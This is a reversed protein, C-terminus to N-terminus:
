VDVSDQESLNGDTELRENEITIADSQIITDTVINPCDHHCLADGGSLITKNLKWPAAAAVAKASISFEFQEHRSEVAPTHLTMSGHFNDFELATVHGSPLHTMHGVFETM